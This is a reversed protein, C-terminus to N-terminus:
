EVEWQEEIDWNERVNFTKVNFYIPEPQRRKTYDGETWRGDQNLDAIAQVRYKGPKLNKFTIVGGQQRGEWIQTTLVKSQTEDTLQVLYRTSDGEQTKLTLKLNGFKETGLTSIQFDLSDSEGGYLNRFAGREIHIQLHKDAKLTTAVYARLGSSDMVTGCWQVTSDKQDTIRVTSDSRVQKAPIDFDIWVTDFTAVTGGTKNKIWKPKINAAPGKRLTSKKRHRLTLTDDIGTADQLVIRLSDCQENKTWIRITDRSRNLHWVISDECLLTPREMAVASVLEIAGEKVFEKKTLRQKVATQGSMKLKLIYDIAVKGATDRKAMPQATVASDMFGIKEEANYKMDRNGDELATVWYKGPTIHSLVFRGEKDCRTMYDPIGHSVVTDDIEGGDGCRYAMVSVTQGPEKMTYADKVEGALMMSDITSGTSLAYEYHEITNGETFDAIAKNFQILYTTNERLTDNLRVTLTKGRATYDPKHKMPPSVLINNEADKLVIYEDFTLVIKAKDFNLTENPPTADTVTPPTEDRPGGEPYGQKACAWCVGIM